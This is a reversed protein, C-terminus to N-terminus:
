VRERCSARGIEVVVASSTVPVVRGLLGVSLLTTGAIAHVDSAIGPMYDIGPTTGSGPLGGGSGMGGKQETIYKPLLDIPVEGPPLPQPGYGLEQDLQGMNGIRMRPYRPMRKPILIAM